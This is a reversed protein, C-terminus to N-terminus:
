LPRASVIIKFLFTQLTTERKEGSTFNKCNYRRRRRRRRYATGLYTTSFLHTLLLSVPMMIPFRINQFFTEFSIKM